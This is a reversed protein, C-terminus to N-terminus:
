AINILYNVVTFWISYCVEYFPKQYQVVTGCFYGHNAFKKIVNLKNPEFAVNLEAPTYHRRFTVGKELFCAILKTFNAHAVANNLILIQLENQENAAM